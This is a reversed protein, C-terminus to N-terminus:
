SRVLLPPPSPLIPKASLARDIIGDVHALAGKPDYLTDLRAVDLHEAIDPDASALERMTGKGDRAAFAVRQVWRYAEERAIGADVLALLVSESYVLDGSLSANAAMREPYVRLGTLIQGLRALMFDLSSCADPGIVREVSSHSIDREHWLAVDELASGAYGRLLRALGCLNEAMWPNRKHPMASSGKQGATFPEEAELVETRQLHRLEVAVREVSGGVVALASFFAAHRDRPVVQTAVPESSLGLRPLVEAEVDPALHGYTGVAGSLKGTAIERAATGLRDFARVFEAYWSAAKLGFTILEAHVGHTRGMMVTARHEDALTRIPSLVKAVGELLLYAAESLQIAFATDIVDSSTLGLHLFRGPPGASEAAATVFAIVDHKVEAEIAAVRKPDVKAKARLVRVEDLPLAGRVALAECVSLEIELWIQLRREDTWIRGM